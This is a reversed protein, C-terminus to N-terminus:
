ILWNSPSSEISPSCKRPFPGCRRPSLRKYPPVKTENRSRRRSTMDQMGSDAFHRRKIEIPALEAQLDILKPLTMSILPYYIQRVKMVTSMLQQELDPNRLYIGVKVVAIKVEVFLNKDEEYFKVVDAKDPPAMSFDFVVTQLFNEWKEVAVRFTVLEGREEDRMDKKLELSTARIEEARKELLDAKKDIQDFRRKIYAALAYGVITVVVALVSAGPLLAKALEFLDGISM